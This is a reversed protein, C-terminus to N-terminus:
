EAIGTGGGAAVTDAPTASLRLVPRYSFRHLSCPGHIHLAWQHQATGYGKHAAFGYAPWVQDFGAMLRDRSVKAVISAAAISLCRADGKILAQQPLCLGPLAVADILLADVPLPLMLLATLMALRTAPLIGLMDILYAPVAAAAFALAHHMILAYAAERQAASLQKSDTIGALPAPQQLIAPPLVVAAAVVPGAWCGRGAEDIGAVYRCGRAQWGREFESTVHM